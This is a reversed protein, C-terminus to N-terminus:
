FIRWETSKSVVAVQIDNASLTVSSAGQVNAASCSITIPNTGANGLDAVYFFRGSAVTAPDPLSLTLAGGSTDCFVIGDTLVLTSNSTITREPIALVAKGNADIQLGQGSGVSLDISTPQVDIKVAGDVVVQARSESLTVQTDEGVDSGIIDGGLVVLDDPAVAVAKRYGGRRSM